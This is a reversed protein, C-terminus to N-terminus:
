SLASPSSGQCTSFTTSIGAESTAGAEGAGDGATLGSGAAGVAAGGAGSLFVAGLPMAAENAWAATPALVAALLVTWHLNWRM